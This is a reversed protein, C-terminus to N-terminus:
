DAPDKEWEVPAIKEAEDMLCRRQGPETGRSFALPSLLMQQLFHLVRVETMNKEEDVQHYKHFTRMALDSKKGNGRLIDLVM